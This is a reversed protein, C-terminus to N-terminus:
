CQVKVHAKLYDKQQRERIANIDGASTHGWDRAIHPYPQKTRVFSSSPIPQALPVPIFYRKNRFDYEDTQQFSISLPYDYLYTPVAPSEERARNTASFKLAEFPNDGRM